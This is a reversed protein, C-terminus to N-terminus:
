ERVEEGPPEPLSDFSMWFMVKADYDECWGADPHFIDWRHDKTGNPLQVLVIYEGGEDPLREKVSIWQPIQAELQRILALADEMMATTCKDFAGYLCGNDWKCDKICCELGEKIEDPTKM